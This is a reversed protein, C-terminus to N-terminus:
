SQPDVKIILDITNEISTTSSLDKLNLCDNKKNDTSKDEFPQILMEEIEEASLEEQSEILEFFVNPQVDVFGEEAIDRPVLVTEQIVNQIIPPKWNKNVLVEVVSKNILEFM